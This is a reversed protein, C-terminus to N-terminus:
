PVDLRAQVVAQAAPGSQLVPWVYWRYSGATLRETRGQHRWQGALEFVPRKTTARLVQENGRFLEVRYGVAGEVPAWAFRRPPVAPTRTAPKSTKKAPAPKSGAKAKPKAAAKKQAPTAKPAVVRKSPKPSRRLRRLRFSLRRRSRPRRDM